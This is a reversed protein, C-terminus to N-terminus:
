ATLQNLLAQTPVTPYLDVKRLVVRGLGPNTASAYNGLQLRGGSLGSIPASPPVGTTFLASAGNMSALTIGDAFGIAGRFVRGDFTLAASDGFTSVSAKSILNRQINSTYMVAANAGSLSLDILTAVAQIIGDLSGIARDIVYDATLIFKSTDLEAGLVRSVVDASRIVDGSTTEVYSSLQSGLGLNCGWVDMYSSGDGTYSTNGSADAMLVATTWVTGAAADVMAIRYINAASDWLQVIGTAGGSTATVSGAGTLLFSVSGSGGASDSLTCRNRGPGPRVFWSGIYTSGATVPRDVPVVRHLGTSLDEILRCWSQGPVPAGAVASKAVGAVGYQASTAPTGSDRAICTFAKEIVVGRANGANDTEYAAENAAFLQLSGGGAREYKAGSSWAFMSQADAFRTLAGGSPRVYFSRAVFDAGLGDHLNAAGGHVLGLGLGLSMPMM